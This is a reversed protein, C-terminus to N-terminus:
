WVSQFQSNLSRFVIKKFNIEAIGSNELVKSFIKYYFILQLLLWTTLQLWTTLKLQCTTTSALVTAVILRFSFMAFM